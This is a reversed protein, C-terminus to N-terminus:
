DGEDSDDICWNRVLTTIAVWQHQKDDGRALAVAQDATEVLIVSRYDHDGDFVSDFTDPNPPHKAAHDTTVIEPKFRHPIAVYFPLRDTLVRM